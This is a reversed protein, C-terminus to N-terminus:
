RVILVWIVAGIKLGALVIGPLFSGYFLLPKERRFQGYYFGAFSTGSLEGRARRAFFIRLATMIGGFVAAVAVLVALILYMRTQSPDM